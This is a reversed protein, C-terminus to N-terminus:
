RVEWGKETITSEIKKMIDGAEVDTLTKELSQFVLRYAYSIKGEKEYTDFLTTRVLLDGAQRTLVDTLGNTSVDSPLWVAIDRLIFPYQSIKKYRVVDSKNFKEYEKPESLKEALESINFEFVEKGGINKINEGLSTELKKIASVLEEQAKTEARNDSKKITIACSKYERDGNFVSGIEFIAIDSLGLLDKNYINFPLVEEINASLNARMYPRDERIPNQVQVEGSSSFSSTFM